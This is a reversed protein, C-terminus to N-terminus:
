AARDRDSLALDDLLSQRVTESLPGSQHSYDRHDAVISATKRRDALAARCESDLSFEVWHATGFCRDEPRCTVFRALSVRTGCQVRLMSEPFERWFRMQEAWLPGEHVEIQLAAQLRGRSPLLRNYLHLEHQVRQPDGLRAVRLLEHIRFWLTQRNEFTLTLRPGIRVRRYRDLYKAQAAAHHSRQAVYEELSILDDLTLPPMQPFRDVPLQARLRLATIGIGLGTSSIL